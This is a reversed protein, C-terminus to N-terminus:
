GNGSNRMKPKPLDALKVLAEFVDKGHLYTMCEHNRYCEKLHCPSCFLDIRMVKTIDLNSATYRPDTPGMIVVVPVKLAAAFHRPGTDTTVLGALKSIVSKLMDLPLVNRSTDVIPFNAKEIIADAIKEENPGCLLITRADLDKYLRDAVYAFGEPTWLKSPGFSAGPNLGICFEGENLGHEELFSDAVKDLKPNTRLEITEGLDVGGAFRALEMYYSTMPSPERKLGAMKPRLSRNLMFSRGNLAYGTRQKVSGLYFALATSFSNPVILGLDYKISRLESALKLVNRFGPGNVCITEDYYQLGNLLTLIGPKAVITIQADKYGARIARLLPTAMVADGVWNPLRIVISQLNKANESM